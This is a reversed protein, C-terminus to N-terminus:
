MFHLVVAAMGALLGLVAVTTMTNARRKLAVIEEKLSAIEGVQSEVLLIRGDYDALLEAQQKVKASLGAVSTEVVGLRNVLEQVKSLDEPKGGVLQLQAQVQAMDRELSEVRKQLDNAQLYLQKLQEEDTKLKAAIGQVTTELSFVRPQLEAVAESLGELKTLKEGQKQVTFSLGSVSSELKVVRPRLDEEVSRQFGLLDRIKGESEKMQFSVEKLISEFSGLRQADFALDKVIGELKYLSAEIQAIKDGIAGDEQACVTFLSLASALAALALIAIVRKLM